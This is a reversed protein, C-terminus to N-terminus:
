GDKLLKQVNLQKWEWNKILKNLKQEITSTLSLLWLNM